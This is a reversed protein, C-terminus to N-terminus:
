GFKNVKFIFSLMFYRGLRNVQRDVIVNDFVDRSIGSNEDFLDFGDLRLTGRDKKMMKYEMFLRLITPNRVQSNNFGTNIQKSLDYGLTLDKFFYNRGEIGYEYRRTLRDDFGEQSYETKNQSYATEIEMNVINELDVKFELEQRWVTNKGFNKNNDIFAVNNNLDGSGSYGITFKRNMFPKGMYYDGHLNYFGDTNTYSTTQNLTGPILLKTTVIKNQTQNYSANAFFVHGLNWDSQKYHANVSHVFEPKLNPNGTITNQLNSNDTIPQLQYFGPQNNRGWYNVDFSKQNTFKYALRASPIINFTRQMTKIDRTLNQGRLLTPQANVGLTYNFKDSIYRYNMGLKNTIFQYDYNNSLDTNFQELSGAVDYVNRNNTTANRGFNYNFEIFTKKWLPEMYSMGAYTGFSQNIQDNLQNQTRTSDLGNDTIRYDNFVDNNNSGDNYNINAWASLNRGRRSFKHNYFLNTKLNLSKNNSTTRSTRNTLLNLQSITSLGGYQGNNANYSFEPSIKLFNLTDPKYELNGGFGHNDRKNTNDNSSNELRTFQGDASQLFNQTLATSVTNNTVDEFNYWGDVSLKENWENRYNLGAANRTTLGDGGGGRNNANNVTGDFSIQREGKMSNARLSTNYRDSNGLGGSARAFYGKKKDEQITLNLVKQPEGTKLGTLKAQDGYDDIFQLNKIIDAPLNKIATAVDTGFFDKGNVRIKSVPTGQSTVNGDKDVKIGPLKKLIEDVADDERVPFSSANFSVTDETVKVPPMGSIVVADLTNSEVKLKIASVDFVSGSDFFYQKIFTQFGIFAASLTFQRSTVKNLSFTGDNNASIGLSDTGWKIRVVAGPLPLGATDVVTGKVTYDQAKSILFSSTLLVILLTTRTFFNMEIQTHAM